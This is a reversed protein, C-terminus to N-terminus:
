SKFLPQLSAWFSNSVTLQSFDIPLIGRKEFHMVGAFGTDELGILNRSEQRLTSGKVGSLSDVTLKPLENSKM